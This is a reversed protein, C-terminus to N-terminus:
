ESLVSGTDSTVLTDSEDSEEEEDEDEDDSAEPDYDPDDSSSEDDEFVAPDIVWDDEGLGPRKTLTYLHCFGGVLRASPVAEHRIKWEIGRYLCLRRAPEYKSVVFFRGGDVLLDHIRAHILRTRDQAEALEHRDVALFVDCTAKDIVVDFSAPAFHRHLEALDVVEWRMSECARHQAAMDAIVTPSIDVNVINRFGAEYLTPSLTSRGCGLVLIRTDHTGVAALLAQSCPAHNCAM